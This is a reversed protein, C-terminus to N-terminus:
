AQLTNIIKHGVGLNTQDDFVVEIKDVQKEKEKEKEKENTNENEKASSWGTKDDDDNNNDNNNNCEFVIEKTKTRKLKMDLHGSKILEKNAKNTYRDQCKNHCCVCLTKYLNQSFDFQLFLCVCNVFSDISVIASSIKAELRFPGNIKIELSIIGLILFFLSSILAIIVMLTYKIKLESIDNILRTAYPKNTGDQSGANTHMFDSNKIMNSADFSGSNSRTLEILQKKPLKGFQIAFDNIVGNLKKLFLRLLVLGYFFLLLVVFLITGGAVSPSVVNIARLISMLAALIGAFVGIIKVMTLLHPSAEYKTNAFAIIIRNTFLIIVGLFAGMYSVGGIPLIWFSIDPCRMSIDMVLSMFFVLTFVCYFILTAGGLKQIYRSDKTEKETISTKIVNTTSKLDDSQQYHYNYWFLATLCICGVMCPTQVVLVFIATPNSAEYCEGTVYSM